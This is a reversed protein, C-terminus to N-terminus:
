FCLLGVKKNEFKRFPEMRYTPERQVANSLKSSTDEYTSLRHRSLLQKAFRRSALLGVLSPGKTPVISRRGHGGQGGQTISLRRNSEEYQTTSSMRRSPNLFTSSRQKQFGDKLSHRHEMMHKSVATHDEDAEFKISNVSQKRPM